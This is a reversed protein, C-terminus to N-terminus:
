AKGASGFAKIKEKVVDSVLERAPGLIKRPDFVQKDNIITERVSATFAIRLDSDINIKAVGLKIARKEESIPVGKAGALRSCDGLISCKKHLRNLWKEAIGSAGHLVLPVSVRQSIEKLRKLDLTIDGAAKKKFAGHATGISIALADCKTEKVFIEAQKPDTFFADKQKVNVLDEVGAIAGLEAEVSIKRGHALKVMQKTKKINEKFPNSSGDYMVSTYLGSKIATKVLAENKGHDLHIVVPVNAGQAAVHAIASLYDMGAYELAGESTQLIVPSGLEEAADIIGQAIELNNINFAGVAYGGKQAKPLITNLNTLM